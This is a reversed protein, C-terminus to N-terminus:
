GYVLKGMVCLQLWVDATIADDDEKLVDRLHDIYKDDESMLKSGRAFSGKSLTGLPFDDELDFVTIAGGAQVYEWIRSVTCNAISLDEKVEATKPSYGKPPLNVGIMNLGYWYNSGGELATTLLDFQRSKTIRNAM